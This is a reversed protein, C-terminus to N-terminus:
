HSVYIDGSKRCGWIIIYAYRYYWQWIDPMLVLISFSGTLAYHSHGSATFGYLQRMGWVTEVMGFVNFELFLLYFFLSFGIGKEFTGRWIAADFLSCYYFWGHLTFGKWVVGMSYYNGWKFTWAYGCAGHKITLMSYYIVFRTKRVANNHIGIILCIDSLIINWFFPIYTNM